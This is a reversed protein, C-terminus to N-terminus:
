TPKDNTMTAIIREALEVWNAWTAETLDYEYAIIRAVEETKTM